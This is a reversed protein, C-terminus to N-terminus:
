PTVVKLSPLLSSPFYLFLMRIVEFLFFCKNRMREALNLSLISEATFAAWLADFIAKCFASMAIELYTSLSVGILKFLKLAVSDNLARARYSLLSQEGSKEGVLTTCEINSFGARKYAM